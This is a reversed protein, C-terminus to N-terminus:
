AVKRYVNRINPLREIQSMIRSLQRVDRIELEVQVRAIHERADVRADARRMNIKEDAVVGTIDRLLGARDYAEVEIQVNYFNQSQEEDWQMPVIRAAELPNKQRSVLNPCDVKHMTVGKGRTIYGVVKDGPLPKCCGAPQAYLGSQGLITVGSTATAAAPSKQGASLLNELEQEKKDQRERDLIKQVLSHVSIDSYGVAALFDDVENYNFMQAIEEFGYKVSYRKLERDVVIRGHAVSSERAQRRFYSMVKSRARQTSIYGAEPNLWDRSPGGRKASIITVQDGNQLQYNLQVIVGNVKAGRCREGLETHIHYAFDVPTAGRPLDIVDGQPTFVYVRDQFVDAQIRQLYEEADTDDQNWDILARLLAIKETLDQNPSKGKLGEEKYEWHAAVGLEAVEDMERTRIQVEMSHGDPGIVATHLSQYMNEKPSAIYDDFEGPIPRWIGHILGLAAYCDTVTQTIVRFGQIDYIESFPVGKREMKKYISYIHKPRGVVKARIGAEQLRDQILTATKQVWDERVQRKQAMARSIEDYVQRDLHRFSLDELEWKFQGIGLRNALPAFIELTEHAITKRKLPPQGNLTRMNHVRDALKVIVVRIDDVMAVFMRRLSEAKRHSQEQAKYQSLSDIRQLKTVGHVLNAITSSFHRELVDLSCNSDEVVDHLLAACLTEADMNLERLINAVALPHLIYPEGTKRSVGDHIIHALVFARTILGKDGEPISDPLSLMFTNFTDLVLPDLRLPFPDELIEPPIPVPHAQKLWTRMALSFIRTGQYVISPMDSEADPASEVQFQYTKAISEQRVLPKEAASAPALIAQGDQQPPLAGPDATAM